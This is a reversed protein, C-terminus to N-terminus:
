EFRIAKVPDIRGILLAPLLLCILCILATILNLGVIHLPNLVISVTSVFYTQPDLKILGFRDQLVALGLGILNGWFLGRGILFLAQLLFVNRLQRSGAGLAKLIGIMQRREMILILLAISINVTAVILIIVVILLINLDFLDLWQFLQSERERLSLADYALPLKPRLERAVETPHYGPKLYLSYGGVAAEDWRNLRRIHKLDGLLYQADIASFDTAFIGAVVLRRLLPPGERRLFYLELPSGVELKLRRALLQGVLVSDQYDKGALSFFSGSRLYPQLDQWAFSSDIGKWIVGEYSEGARAIGAKNGYAQLHEVGPHERLALRISDNLVVARDSFGPRMQYPSIQIAGNFRYVKQAIAQRLGNGTALALIMIAMGLGIAWVAIRLVPRAISNKSKSRGQM